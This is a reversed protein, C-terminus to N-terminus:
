FPFFVHATISSDTDILLYQHTSSIEAKTTDFYHDCSQYILINWVNLIMTLGKEVRLTDELTQIGGEM